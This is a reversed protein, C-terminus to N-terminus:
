KFVLQYIPQLEGGACDVKKQGVGSQFSFVISIDLDEGSNNEITWVFVAAPLSSEQTNFNFIFHV